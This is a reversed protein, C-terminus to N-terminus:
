DQSGRVAIDSSRIALPEIRCCEDRGIGAGEAVSGAVREVTGSKGIQVKRQRLRVVSCSCKRACNRTSYKLTSFWAFKVVGFGTTKLM